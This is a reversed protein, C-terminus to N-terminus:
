RMIQHIYLIYVVKLDKYGFINENDGYIQHVMEPQFVLKENEMDEASGVFRFGYYKVVLKLVWRQGPYEYNSGGNVRAQVYIVFKAIKGQLIM